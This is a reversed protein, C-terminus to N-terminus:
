SANGGQVYLRLSVSAASGTYKVKFGNVQKDYIVIDGVNDTPTAIEATVTYDVSDRNVSLAVTKVSNNFFAEGASNTLTVEIIEGSINNIQDKQHKVTETLFEATLNASNIGTEMNNLNQEDVPTGTQIGSVEDLWTTPNYVGTGNADIYPQERGTAM